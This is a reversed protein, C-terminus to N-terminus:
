SNVPPKKGFLSTINNDEGYYYVFTQLYFKGQKYYTLSAKKLSLREVSSGAEFGMNEHRTYGSVLHDSVWSGPIKDILLNIHHATFKCVQELWKCTELNLV